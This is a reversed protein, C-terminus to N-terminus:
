RLPPYLLAQDPTKTNKCCHSCGTPCSFGSKRVSAETTVRDRPSHGSGLLLQCKEPHSPLVSSAKHQSTTTFTSLFVTSASSIKGCRPPLATTHNEQSLRFDLPILCTHICDRM